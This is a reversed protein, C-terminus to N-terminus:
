ICVKNIANVDCKLSTVQSKMTSGTKAAIKASINTSSTSPQGNNILMRILSAHGNRAAWSLPADGCKDIQNISVGRRLLFATIREQGAGVSIHLLTEGM